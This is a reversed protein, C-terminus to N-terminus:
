MDETEHVVLAQNFSIKDLEIIETSIMAVAARRCRQQDNRWRGM